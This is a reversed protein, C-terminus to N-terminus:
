IKRAARMLLSALRPATVQLSYRTVVIERGKKGMKSALKKDYYLTNLRDIWQETSNVLYGTEGDQIIDLDASVGSAIVPRGCGMYQILKYGCKGRAWPTDPMPMIGVDFEAISAAESAESWPRSDIPIKPSLNLNEAGIVVLRSDHKRCFGILAQEVRKLYTATTPSGIWGITFPTNKGAPIVRYKALDIVTPIREIWSAGAQVARHALYRNGAIVLRAKQMIRDIKRGLLRRLLYHSNLDYHHFIADDYDVVFPIKKHTLYSEFWSPAWPFLEKEIWILDFGSSRVIRQIRKFYAAVIRSINRKKGAYLGNLYRSDFLPLPVVEIGSRKLAPLYQYSRIRSSAGLTDYRSFLLVKM